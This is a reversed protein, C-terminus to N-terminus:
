LVEKIVLDQNGHVVYQEISQGPKLTAVLYEIENGDLAGNRAYVEVAESHGPEPYTIVVKTTM